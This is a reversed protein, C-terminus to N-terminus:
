SNPREKMEAIVRDVITEIPIEPRFGITRALKSVDPIRRALDDFGEAYAEEYPIRVIESHSGVRDRVLVALEYISIERDNGINFVKGIAEDCAILRMLSEVVDSVDAFCRRQEGTGYVSVTLVIAM